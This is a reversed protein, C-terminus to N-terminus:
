GYLINNIIIVNQVIIVLSLRYYSTIAEEIRRVFDLHREYELQAMLCYIKFDAHLLVSWLKRSNEREQNLDAKLIDIVLAAETSTLGTKKFIQSQNELEAKLKSLNQQEIELKEEHNKSQMTEALSLM